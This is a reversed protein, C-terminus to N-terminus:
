FYIYMCVQDFNNVGFALIGSFDLDISLDNMQYLKTLTGTLAIDLDVFTPTFRNRGNWYQTNFVPLNSPFIELPKNRTMSVGAIDFNAGFLNLNNNLFQRASQPLGIHFASMVGQCLNIAFCLPTNSVPPTFTESFMNTVTVDLLGSYHLLSHLGTTIAPINSCTEITNVIVERQLDVQYANLGFGRMPYDIPLLNLWSPILSRSEILYTFALAESSLFDKIDSVAPGFSDCQSPVDSVNGLNGSLSGCLSCDLTQNRENSALQDVLIDNGIFRLRAGAITLPLNLGNGTSFVIGETLLSGGINSITCSSLVSINGGSPCSMYIPSTPSCCSPLLRGIMVGRNIFYTYDPPAIQPTIALYSDQPIDFDFADPGDLIYAVRYLGAILPAIAISASINPSMIVAPNPSFTVASFNDQILAIRIEDDPIATYNLIFPPQGVRLLPFPPVGIVGFQCQPGTYGTGDCDCLSLVPSVVVCRGGHLCPSPDCATIAISFTFCIILVNGRKLKGLSM